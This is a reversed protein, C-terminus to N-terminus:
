FRDARHRRRDLEDVDGSQHGTSTLTFTQAVLKEAVDALHIGDNLYNATELVPIDVMHASRDIRNPVDLYDIRFQDQGVQHGKLFSEITHLLLDPYTVLLCLSLSGQDLDQERM